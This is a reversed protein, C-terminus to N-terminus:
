PEVLPRDVVHIVGRDGVVDPALVKARGAIVPHHPANVGGPHANCPIPIQAGDLTTFVKVIPKGADEPKDAAFVEQFVVRQPILHARVFRTAAAPDKLLQAIRVKQDKGFAEDVPVILTLPQGTKLEPVDAARLLGIMISFAGGNKALVEEFGANSPVWIPRIGEALSPTAMAQLFGTLLLLRKM